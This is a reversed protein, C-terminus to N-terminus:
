WGVLGALPGSAWACGKAECGAWAGPRPVVTGLAMTSAMAVRPWPAGQGPPGASRHLATPTGLVVLYQPVVRARYVTTCARLGLLEQAM